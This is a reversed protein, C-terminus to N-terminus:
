KGAEVTFAPIVGGKYNENNLIFDYVKSTQLV